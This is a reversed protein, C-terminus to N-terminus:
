CCFLFSRLTCQLICIAKVVIMLGGVRQLMASHSRLKLIRQSFTRGGYAIALMPLATGVGYAVLLGFADTVQHNVAALV